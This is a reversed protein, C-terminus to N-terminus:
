RARHDLVQVARDPGGRNRRKHLPTTACMSRPLPSHATPTDCGSRGGLVAGTTEIYEEEAGDRGTVGALWDMAHNPGAVFGDLSM